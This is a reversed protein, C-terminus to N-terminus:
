IVKRMRDYLTEDEQKWAKDKHFVVNRTAKSASPLSAKPRPKSGQRVEWLDEHLGFGVYLPGFEWESVRDVDHRYEPSNVFNSSKHLWSTKLDLQDLADPTCPTARDKRVSDFLTHLAALGVRIPKVRIIELRSQDIGVSPLVDYM